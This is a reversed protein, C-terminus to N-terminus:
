KAVWRPPTILIPSVGVTAQSSRPVGSSGPCSLQPPRKTGTLCIGAQVRRWGTVAAVGTSTNETASSTKSAGPASGESLGAKMSSTRPWRNSPKQVAGPSHRM